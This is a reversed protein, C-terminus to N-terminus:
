CKKEDIEFRPNDLWFTNEYLTNLRLKVELDKSNEVPELLVVDLLNLSEGSGPELRWRLTVRALFPARLGAERGKRPVVCLEYVPEPLVNEVQILQRGIRCANIKLDFVKDVYLGQKDRSATGYDAPQFLLHAPNYFERSHGQEPIVGWFFSGRLDVETKDSEASNEFHLFRNLHPNVLSDLYLAAGVVTCSKADMIRGKKAGDLGTSAFPYWTGAPFNRAHIIRQPLLPFSERILQRLRPLESPKGTVVVLDCNFTGAVRGLSKCFEAFVEDVCKDIESPLVTLQVNKPFVEGKWRSGNPCLERIVDCAMRNLEMIQEGFRNGFSDM